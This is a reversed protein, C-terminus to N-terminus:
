DPPKETSHGAHVCPQRLERGKGKEGEGRGPPPNMNASESYNVVKASM